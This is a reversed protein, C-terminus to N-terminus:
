RLRRVRRTSMTTWRSVSVVCLVSPPTASLAVRGLSTHTPVLAWRFPQYGMLGCTLPTFALM